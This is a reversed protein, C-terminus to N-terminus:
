TTLCSVDLDIVKFSHDLLLVKELLSTILILGCTGCLLRRTARSGLDVLSLRKEVRQLWVNVVCIALALLLYGDRLQDLHM